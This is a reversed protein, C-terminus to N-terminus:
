DSQFIQFIIAITALKKGNTAYKRNILRAAHTMLNDTIKSAPAYGIIYAKTKRIDHYHNSNNEHLHFVARRALIFYMIISYLIPVFLEVSTLIVANKKIM